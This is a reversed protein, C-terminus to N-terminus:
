EHAHDKKKKRGVTSCLLPRSAAGAPQPRRRRRHLPLSSWPDWACVSPQEIQSSAPRTPRAARVPTRPPWPVPPWAFLRRLFAPFSRVLGLLPLRLRHCLIRPQSASPPPLVIAALDRARPPLWPPRTESRACCWLALSPSHPPSHTSPCSPRECKSACPAPHCTARLDSTRCCHPAHEVAHSGRCGKTSCTPPTIRGAKSGTQPM